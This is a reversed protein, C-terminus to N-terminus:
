TVSDALDAPDHGHSRRAEGCLPELQLIILYLDQQHKTPADAIYLGLINIRSYKGLLSSSICFMLCFAQSTDFCFDPRCVLM